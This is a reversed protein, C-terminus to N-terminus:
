LTLGSGCGKLFDTGPWMATQTTLWRPKGFRMPLDPAIRELVQIGTTEDVLLGMERLKGPVDRHATFIDAIRDDKREHVKVNLGNRIRHPWLEKKANQGRQM